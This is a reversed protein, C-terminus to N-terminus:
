EVDDIGVDQRQGFAANGRPVLNEPRRQQAFRVQRQDNRSGVVFGVIRQPVALDVRELLEVLHGLPGRRTVQDEQGGVFRACQAHRSDGPAPEVVIVVEEAVLVGAVAEGYRVVEFDQLLQEAEFGAAVPSAVREPRGIRYGVEHFGLGLRQAGFKALLGFPDPDPIRRQGLLILIGLAVGVNRQASTPARFGSNRRLENEIRGLTESNEPIGSVRGRALAPPNAQQAGCIRRDERQPTYPHLVGRAGAFVKALWM